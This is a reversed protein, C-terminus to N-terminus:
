GIRRRLGYGANREVFKALAAKTFKGGFRVPEAAKGNKNAPFLMM